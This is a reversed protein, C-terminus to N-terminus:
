IKMIKQTLGSVDLQRSLQAQSSDRYNFSCAHETAPLHNICFQKECKCSYALIALSTKCVVCRKTRIKKLEAM